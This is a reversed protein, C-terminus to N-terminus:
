FCNIYFYIFYLFLTSLRTLKIEEKYYNPKNIKSENHFIIAIGLNELAQYITSNKEEIDLGRNIIKMSIDKNLM